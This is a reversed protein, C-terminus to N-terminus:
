KENLWKLDEPTPLTLALDMSAYISIMDMFAKMNKVTLWETKISDILLEKAFKTNRSTTLLTDANKYFAAYEEDQEILLARMFKGKFYRNWDETSRGIGEGMKEKAIFSMWIWKLRHQAKSRTEKEDKITVVDGIKVEDFCNQKIKDSTIRYTNM